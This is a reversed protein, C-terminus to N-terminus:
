RISPARFRREDRMPEQAFSEEAREACLLQSQVHKQHKSRVAIAHAKIVLVADARGQFDTEVVVELSAM